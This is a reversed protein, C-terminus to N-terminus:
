GAVRCSSVADSMSGMITLYESLDLVDLVHKINPPVQCLVIDGGGERVSEVTGLISGVGASSILTLEAMDVIINRFDGAQATTIANAMEHANTNDLVAGPRIIIADDLVETSVVGDTM